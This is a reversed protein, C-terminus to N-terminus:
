MQSQAARAVEPLKSFAYPGELIAGAALYECVRRSDRSVLLVPAHRAECIRRAANVGDGEDVEDGVVVLDPPHREAMVVAEDETFAHDLSDFGLDALRKSLECGIAMNGEIILAQPM